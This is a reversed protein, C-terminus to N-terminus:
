LGTANAVNRTISSSRRCWLILLINKKVYGRMFEIDRGVSDMYYAPSWLGSGWFYREKLWPFKQFLKKAINGKILKAVEPRSYNSIDIICHVHDDDFGIEKYPIKYRVLLEILLTEAEQRVEKIDFIKHCYKVKFTAHIWLEGVASSYRTPNEKRM